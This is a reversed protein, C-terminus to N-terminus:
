SVITRTENTTVIVQDSVMSQSATECHVNEQKRAISALLSIFPLSPSSIQDLDGIISELVMSAM